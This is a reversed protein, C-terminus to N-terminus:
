QGARGDASSDDWLLGGVRRAVDRRIADTHAPLSCSCCAAVFHRADHLRGDRVGAAKLPSQWERCDTNLNLPRGAPTAFVWEGEQWLQRAAERECGKGQRHSALRAVLQDPLGM